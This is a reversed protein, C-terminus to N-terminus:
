SHVNLGETNMARAVRRGYYAATFAASNIQPFCLHVHKTKKYAYTLTTVLFKTMSLDEASM